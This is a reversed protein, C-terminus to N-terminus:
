MNSVSEENIFNTEM